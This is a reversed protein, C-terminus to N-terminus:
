IKPYVCSLPLYARVASEVAERFADLINQQAQLPRM